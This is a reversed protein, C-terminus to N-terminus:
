ISKALIQSTELYRDPTLQIQGNKYSTNSLLVVAGARLGDMIKLRDGARLIMPNVPLGRKNQVTLRSVTLTTPEDVPDKWRALYTDRYQAASASDLSAANILADRRRYAAQSTTDQEDTTYGADYKVWVANALQRTTEVLPWSSPLRATYIMYDYDTLDRPWLHAVPKSVTGSAASSYLAADDAWVTKGGALWDDNSMRLDIRVVAKAATAPATVVRLFQQWNTTSFPYDTQETWDDDSISVDGSTYWTIKFGNLYPTYGLPKNFSSKYWASFIYDTNEVIGTITDSTVWVTSSGPSESANVSYSGSHADSDDWLANSLTWGSPSGTEFNGNGILNNITLTELRLKNPEWLAFLLPQDSSNGTECIDQVISSVAVFTQEQEGATVSSAQINSYDSSIWECYYLLVAKLAESTEQDANYYEVLRQQCNQWPGLCTVSLNTLRGQQSREIDEIWGWWLVRNGLSVIVRQGTDIGWVKAGSASVSFTCQLFGGPLGTTFSLGTVTQGGRTKLVEVGTADDYIAVTPQRASPVEAASAAGPSRRYYSKVYPM